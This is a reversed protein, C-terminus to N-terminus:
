IQGMGDSVELVSLLGYDWIARVRVPVKGKQSKGWGIQFSENQCCGTTGSLESEPQYKVKRLNAGDWRLGRMSSESEVSQFQQRM